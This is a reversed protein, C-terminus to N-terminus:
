EAEGFSDLWAEFAREGGRTDVWAEFTIPPHEWPYMAQPKSSEVEGDEVATQYADQADQSEYWREWAVQQDDRSDHTLWADYSTM